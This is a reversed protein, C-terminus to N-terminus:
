IIPVKEFAGPVCGVSGHVTIKGKSLTGPDAQLELSTTFRASGTVSGRHLNPDNFPKADIKLSGHASSWRYFNEGLHIHVDTEGSDAYDGSSKYHEVNVYFFFDAGNKLPMKYFIYFDDGVARCRFPGKLRIRCEGEITLDSPGSPPPTDKPECMGTTWAIENPRPIRPHPSPESVSAAPPAVPPIIPANSLDKQCAPSLVLLWLILAAMRLNRM